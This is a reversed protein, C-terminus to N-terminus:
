PKGGLIASVMSLNGELMVLVGLIAAVLALVIGPMILLSLRVLLDLCGWSMGRMQKLMIPLM